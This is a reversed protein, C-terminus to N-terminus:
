KKKPGMKPDNDDHKLRMKMSKDERPSRKEPSMSERHEESCCREHNEQIKVTRTAHAMNAGRLNQNSLHSHDSGEHGHYGKKKEPPVKLGKERAESLAIAVKQKQPKDEGKMKHMKKAIVKEAKEGYKAM